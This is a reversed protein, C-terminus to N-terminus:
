KHRTESCFMASETGYTSDAKVEFASLAESTTAVWVVYPAEGAAVETLAAADAAAIDTPTAGGAEVVVWPQLQGGLDAAWVSGAQNDAFGGRQLM